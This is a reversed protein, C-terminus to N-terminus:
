DYNLGGTLCDGYVSKLVVWDRDNYSVSFQCHGGNHMAGGSIQVPVTEGANVDYSSPGKIYGRCPYPREAGLPSTYSYDFESEPYNKNHKSKRPPPNTMEMHSTVQHVAGLFFLIASLKNSIM